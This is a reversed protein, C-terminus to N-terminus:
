ECTLRMICGKIYCKWMTSVDFVGFVEDCLVHWWKRSSCVNRDRILAISSCSLM